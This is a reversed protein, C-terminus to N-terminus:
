GALAFDTRKTEVYIQGKTVVELAELPLSPERRASAGRSDVAAPATFTAFDVVIQSSSRIATLGPDSSRSVTRDRIEIWDDGLTELQGKDLTVHHTVLAGVAHAYNSIRALNAPKTMREFESVAQQTIGLLEAVQSQKLGSQVRAEVLGSVLERNQRALYKARRRSKKTGFTRSDDTPM